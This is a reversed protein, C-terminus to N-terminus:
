FTTVWLPFWNAPYCYGWADRSMLLCVNKKGKVTVPYRIIFSDKPKGALIKEYEGGMAKERTMVFITKANAREFPVFEVSRKLSQSLRLAFLKGFTEPKMAERRVPEDPGPLFTVQFEPIAGHLASFVAGLLLIVAFALKKSM